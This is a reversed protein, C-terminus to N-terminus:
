RLIVGALDEFLADGLCARHGREDGRGRGVARVVLLHDREVDVVRHESILPDTVEDPGGGVAAGAAEQEAAGGSARGEVALAQLVLVTVAVHEERDHRVAEGVVRGVAVLDGHDDLLAQPPHDGLLLIDEVVERQHVLVVSM